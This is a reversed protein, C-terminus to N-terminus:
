KGNTKPNDKSQREKKLKEMFTDGEFIGEFFFSPLLDKMQRLNFKMSEAYMKGALDQPNKGTLYKEEWKGEEGPAGLIGNKDPGKMRILIKSENLRKEAIRKNEQANKKTPDIALANDYCYLADLYNKEDVYANGLNYWAEFQQSNLKISKKYEDIAERVKGIKRLCLGLNTRAKFDSANLELVKRFSLIAKEFKGLDMSVLGKYGWTLYFNPNIAIAEDFKELAQEFKTQNFLQIGEETLLYEKSDRKIAELLEQGEVGKIRMKVRNRLKQADLNNPNGKLIDEFVQYAKNFQQISEYILGKNLRSKIHNPDMTLVQDYYKLAEDYKKLMMLVTAKGFLAEKLNPFMELAKDFLKMAKELQNQIMYIAAINIVARFNNPDIRLAEQFSKLSEEVKGLALQDAGKDNLIKSEPDLLNDRKQDEELIAEESAESKTEILKIYKKAMPNTPAIKLVLDMSKKADVFENRNYHCIGKLTLAPVHNPEIYLVKNLDSIAYRYNKNKAYSSASRLSSTVIYSKEKELFPSDYPLELSLESILYARTESSSITGLAYLLMLLKGKVLKDHLDDILDCLAENRRSINKILLRHIESDSLFDKFDEILKTTLPVDSFLPASRVIAEYFNQLKYLTVGYLGLYQKTQAKNPQKKEIKKVISLVSKFKGANFKSRAKEILNKIEGESM